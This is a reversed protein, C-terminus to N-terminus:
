RLGTIKLVENIRNFYTHEAQVKYAGSLGVYDALDKNKLLFKVKDPIDRLSNVIFLDCNNTFYSEWNPFRYSITPRGCALCMLLRDSFYHSVDNYHSISLSCFSNHYKEVVKKQDISGLSGLSPEWNSGFLAFRNGFIKRLEKLVFIREKRGPYNEISNDNGIFIVDFEYNEKKSLPPFYLKPNYGVQVFKVDKGIEKRYMELQGTSTIFNYDAIRAMNKYTNQVYNRIDITYNVIIMKPLAKKVERVSESDIIDTHQIQMYLLDPKIAKVFNIFDNRVKYLNRGCSDYKAFYDFVDLKCGCERFADYTGSNVIDGFNLPLYIVKIM